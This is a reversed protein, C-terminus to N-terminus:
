RIVELAVTGSPREPLDPRPDEATELFFGRALNAALTRRYWASGRHDDIPTFDDALALIAAEVSARTWPRGRIAARPGTSRAISGRARMM